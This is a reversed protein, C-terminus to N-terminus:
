RVKIGAKSLGKYYKDFAACTIPENERLFELYCLNRFSFNMM